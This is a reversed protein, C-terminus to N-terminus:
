QLYKKKRRIEKKKRESKRDKGISKKNVIKRFKKLIKNEM